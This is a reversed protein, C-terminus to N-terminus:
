NNFHTCYHSVSTRGTWLSLEEVLFVKSSDETQLRRRRWPHSCSASCRRLLVVSDGRSSPYKRSWSVCVLSCVTLNNNNNKVDIPNFVVKFRTVEQKISCRFLVNENKMTLKSLRLISCILLCM